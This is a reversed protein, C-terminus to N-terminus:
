PRPPFIGVLAICYTIALYPQLNTHPLGNGVAGAAASGGFTVGGARMAADPAASSYLATVGTSEGAPASGAPTRRDGPANKGKLAGGAVLAHTHSPITAPTLTVTEQGASEGQTRASLGPGQGYAIAARGQLNPLAFNSRGDGGYMTGLLSFLATNQNIPLIQGACTAWGQPAFNSTFVRIEGVYQDSM